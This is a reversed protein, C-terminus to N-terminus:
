WAALPHTRVVDAHISCAMVADIIQDPMDAADKPALTAVAALRRDHARV